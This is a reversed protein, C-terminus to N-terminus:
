GHRLLLALSAAVADPARELDTWTIHVIRWGLATLANRRVRDRDFRARGSHWRYGDAEIALKANPYAFDVVGVVRGRDRIPYQRVPHPLGADNIARLLRTEFVSKPVVDSTRADILSRLVAVGPRGRPSRDLRWRLRAMSVLGRRLADDLAEEVMDRLVVSAIDLLTRAPTTVPIAEVITTDSALLSNRHVIGPAARKRHIPVTLEILNPEFGALHWLAAAARHSAFAGAGWALCAALLSSRWSPPAGALRLSKGALIEWRGSLLRRQIVGRTAGLELLQERGFVGHQKSALRAVHDDISERAPDADFGSRM